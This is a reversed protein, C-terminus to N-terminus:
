LRLGVVIVEDGEVLEEIQHSTFDLCSFVAGDNKLSLFLINGAKEQRYETVSFFFFDASM